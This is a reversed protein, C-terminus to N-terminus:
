LFGITKSSSTIYTESVQRNILELSIWLQGNTSTVLSQIHIEDQMANFESLITKYISSKVNRIGQEADDIFFRLQLNIASEGTSIINVTPAPSNLVRPEKSAATKMITMALDLNSDYSVGIDLKIRVQNQEQTWNIIPNNIDIAITIRRLEM